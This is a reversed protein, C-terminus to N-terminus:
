RTELTHTATNKDGPSATLVLRAPERGYAATVFQKCECFPDLPNVYTRVACGLRMHEGKQHGCDACLDYVSM